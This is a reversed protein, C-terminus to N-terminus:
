SQTAELGSYQSKFYLLPSHDPNNTAVLRDVSGIVIWHDGAEHEAFIDCDLHFLVGAITPNNFYQTTQEM